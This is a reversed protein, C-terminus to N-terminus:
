QPQMSTRFYVKQRIPKGAKDRVPDFRGREFGDKCPDKRGPEPPAIIVQCNEVIGAESIEFGIMVNYPKFPVPGVSDPEPIQWRVRRTYSSPVPNGRDDTAPYFSARSTLVGCATGDLLTSGSSSTIRCREVEGASDIDLMVASIGSAGARLALQPYDETTVWSDSDGKPQPPHALTAVAPMAILLMLPYV